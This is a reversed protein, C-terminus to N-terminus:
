RSIRSPLFVIGLGNEADGVLVRGAALETRVAEAAPYLTGNADQAGQAELDNIGAVVALGIRPNILRNAWL